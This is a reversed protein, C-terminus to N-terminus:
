SPARRVDSGTVDGTKLPRTFPAKRYKKYKSLDRDSVRHRSLHLTRRRKSLM